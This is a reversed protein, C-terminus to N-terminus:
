DVGELRTGIVSEATLEEIATEDLGLLETLIAENHEGLTPAASRCWRDVSRFRFPITSAQHQGVIPHDLHEFYGRATLQPHGPSLRADHLPSAPVGSASLTAAAETCDQGSTWMELQKDILDHARWRGEHTDLSPDDAWGPQGLATRL